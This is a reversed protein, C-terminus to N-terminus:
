RVRLASPGLSGFKKTVAVALGGCWVVVVVAVGGVGECCGCHGGVFYDPLYYVLLEAAEFEFEWAVVSV